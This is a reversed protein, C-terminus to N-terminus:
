NEMGIRNWVKTGEEHILSELSRMVKSWGKRYMPYELVWHVSEAAVSKPTMILSSAKRDLNFEKEYIKLREIFYLEGEVYEDWRFQPYLDRV